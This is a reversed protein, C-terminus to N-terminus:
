LYAWSKPEDAAISVFYLGDIERIGKAAKGLLLLLPRSGREDVWRKKSGIAQLTL